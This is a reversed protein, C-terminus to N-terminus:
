GGFNIHVPTVYDMRRVHTRQIRMIAYGKVAGHSHAVFYLYDESEYLLLLKYSKHDPNVQPKANAAIFRNFPLHDPDTFVRVLLPRGGALYGPIRGYLATAFIVAAAGVCVIRKISGDIMHFEVQKVRQLVPGTVPFGIASVAQLLTLLAAVWPSVGLARALAFDKVAVTTVFLLLMLYLPKIARLAYLALAPVGVYLIVFYAGVIICQPRLLDVSLISFRVYYVSSIILGILYLVLALKTADVTTRRVAALAAADDM